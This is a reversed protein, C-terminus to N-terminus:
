IRAVNGVRAAAPAPVNGIHLSIDMAFERAAM